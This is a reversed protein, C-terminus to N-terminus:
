LGLILARMLPNDVIDSMHKGAAFVLVFIAARFLSSTTPPSAFLECLEATDPTATMSTFADLLFVVSLLVCVGVLHVACAVALRVKKDGTNVTIRRPPRDLACALSCVWLAFMEFVAAACFVARTFVVFIRKRM